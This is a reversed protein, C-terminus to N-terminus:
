NLGLMRALGMVLNESVGNNRCYSLVFDKPNQNACQRQLSQVQQAMEPNNNLINQALANPNAGQKLMQFLNDLQPPCTTGGQLFPNSM